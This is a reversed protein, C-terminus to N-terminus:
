KKKRPGRAKKQATMSLDKFRLLKKSTKSMRAGSMVTGDAHKHISGTHKQGNRLYLPM